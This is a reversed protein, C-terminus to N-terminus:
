SKVTYVDRRRRCQCPRVHFTVTLSEERLNLLELNQDTLWVTMHSIVDMTLPLYILVSPKNVIKQGPGVNPFFDHIIPASTGNLTSYKIIDCNVNISNVRLIEVISDSEFRNPGRKISGKDTAFGLLPGISKQVSFDVQVDKGLMLISKLTSNDASLCLIKDEEEEKVEFEKQILRKLTANIASLEYSGTPLSVIKWNKGADCSMRISNNRDEEINPFTYYTEVGTCAMEYSCPHRSDGGNFGGEDFTLAPTFTTRIVSSNGSVQIKWGAPKPSALRKLYVEVMESSTHAM